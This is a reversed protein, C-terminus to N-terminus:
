SWYRALLGAPQETASQVHGRNVDYMKVSVGSLLAFAPLKWLWPKSVARWGSVPQSSKVGALRACVNEVCSEANRALYADSGLGAVFRVCQRTQLSQNVSGVVSSAFPM